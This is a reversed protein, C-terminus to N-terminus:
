PMQGASAADSRGAGIAQPHALPQRLLYQLRAPAIIIAHGSTRYSTQVICMSTQPRRGRDAVEAAQQKLERRPEPVVAGADFM